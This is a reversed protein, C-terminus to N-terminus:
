KSGDIMRGSSKEIWTFTTPDFRFAKKTRASKAWEKPYSKALETKIDTLKPDDARNDWENPDVELDYLEEGGDDYRIYRYRESRVAANGRRFEIITPREWTAEPKRLLPVLSTGDHAEIAPLGCLDNLTPYLDILSVPRSCEGPEFGP